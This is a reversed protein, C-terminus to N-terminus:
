LKHYTKGKVFTMAPTITYETMMEAPKENPASIVEFVLLRNRATTAYKMRRGASNILGIELEATTNGAPDAATLIEVAGDGSRVVRSTLTGCVGSYYTKGGQEIATLASTGADFFLSEAKPVKFESLDAPDTAPPESETEVSVTTEESETDTDTVTEAADAPSATPTGTKETIHEKRNPRGTERSQEVTQSVTDNETEHSKSDPHKKLLALVTIAVAAGTAVASIVIRIHNRKM